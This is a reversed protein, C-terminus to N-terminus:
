PPSPSAHHVAIRWGVPTQRFVQSMRYLRRHEKGDAQVVFTVLGTAAFLGDALSLVHPVSYTVGVYILPLNEFYSLVGAQDTYLAQVSGYFSVETDYLSAVARWNRRGFATAWESQIIEAVELLEM